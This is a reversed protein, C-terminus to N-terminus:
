PQLPVSVVGVQRVEPHVAQVLMGRCTLPFLACTSTVAVARTLGPIWSQEVWGNRATWIAENVGSWGQRALLLIEM